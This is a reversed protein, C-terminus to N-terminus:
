ILIISQDSLQRPKLCVQTLCSYNLCGAYFTSGSHYSRGTDVIAMSESQQCYQHVSCQIITRKNTHTCKVQVYQVYPRFCGPDSNKLPYTRSPLMNNVACNRGTLINHHKFLIISFRFAKMTWYIIWVIVCHLNHQSWIINYAKWYLYWKVLYRKVDIVM